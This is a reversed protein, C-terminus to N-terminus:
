YRSYSVNVGLENSVNLLQDAIEREYDEDRFRRVPGAVSLVGVLEGNAKTVPVAIARLGKIHEVDAALYGGSTLDSSDSEGRNSEVAESKATFVRGATSQDLPIRTGIRTQTQVAQSGHEIFVVVAVDSEHVFFACLEGTEEAIDRVKPQVQEFERVQSRVHGGFDLFRFSLRYEDDERVVYGRIELTRLHNHVTSKAVGLTEALETVGIRDRTQLLELITLTTEVSRVPVNPEKRTM